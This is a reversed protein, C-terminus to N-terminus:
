VAVIAAGQPEIYEVIIEIVGATFAATDFGCIVVVDSTSTRGVSITGERKEDSAFEQTGSIYVGDCHTVEGIASMQTLTIDSVIGNADDVTISDTNVDYCGIDLVSSSGAAATVVNVYANTIISGRKIIASRADFSAATISDTDELDALTVSLRLIKKMNGSAVAAVENDQTHTGFGVVLGDPNNWTAGRSM